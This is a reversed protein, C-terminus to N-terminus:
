RVLRSEKLMADKGSLYEVDIMEFEAKGIIVEPWGQVQLWKWEGNIYVQAQAHAIGNEKAKKSTFGIAIRTPYSKGVTSIAIISNPGCSSQWTLACGQCFLIINM